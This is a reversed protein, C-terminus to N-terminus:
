QKSAQNWWITFEPKGVENLRFFNGVAIDIRGDGNFDASEIAGHHSKAVEMWTRQFKGPSVQEFLVLSEVDSRSLQEDATPPLMSTAVIDLDQDGDYDGSSIALVGPMRSLPHHVFPFEGRNELWQVSHYPKPGHDFSDGNCYLVDTDGDGDVDVCEIGSSGYTPDAAMWISVADFGGKANNIFAQITEFEQSILAIFDLHGDGNLDIQPVHIAGHRRDIDHLEFHIQSNGQERQNELWFIRGTKNWGFEAVVLDIDGDGDFDGPRVDAVRGLGESLVVPQFEDSQDIRQLWIVRGLDSDAALFEGLDAVVLDQNGDGDLDCRQAHVPQYLTALRKFAPDTGPWYANVTGSGLDCYVLCPQDRLGLDTWQLHSICPPRMTAATAIPRRVEVPEFRVAAPPNGAISDPMALRDPAQEVFYRTVENQDPVKLDGRGSLAYFMYGKGVEAPWDHKVFSEALPTAHCDGCFSQVQPQLRELFERRDLSQNASATVAAVPSRPLNELPRVPSRPEQCGALALFLAFQFGWLLRYANARLPAAPGSRRPAITTSSNM